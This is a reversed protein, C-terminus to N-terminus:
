GWANNQNPRNDYTQAENLRWAQEGTEKAAGVTDAAEPADGGGSM